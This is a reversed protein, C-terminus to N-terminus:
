SLKTGPALRQDIIAEFIRGVIEDESMEEDRNEPEVSHGLSNM